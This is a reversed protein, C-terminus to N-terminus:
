VPQKIPIRISLPKFDGYLKTTDTYDGIYGLCGTKKETSLDAGGNTGLLRTEPSAQGVVGSRM